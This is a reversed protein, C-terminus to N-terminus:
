FSIASLCIHLVQEPPLETELCIESLSKCHIYRNILVARVTEDSATQNIEDLIMAAAEFMQEKTRRIKEERDVIKLALNEVRSSIAKVRPFGDIAHTLNDASQRLRELRREQKILEGRLERVANLEKNTM